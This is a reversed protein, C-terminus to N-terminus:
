KAKPTYPSRSLNERMKKLTKMFQKTQADSIGDFARGYINAGVHVAKGLYKRGKATIHVQVIRKDKAWLKRKILGDREMRDLMRTLTPMKIVSRRAIGTVTSPNQDGLIGLVRWQTQNMDIEKLAKSMEDIYTASTRNLNYLPYDDLVFDKQGPLRSM